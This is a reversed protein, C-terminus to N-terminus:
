VIILIIFKLYTKNLFNLGFLRISRFRPSLIGYTDKRDEKAKNDSLKIVHVRSLSGAGRCNENLM